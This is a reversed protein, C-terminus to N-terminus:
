EKMLTLEVSGKELRSWEDLHVHYGNAYEDKAMELLINSLTILGEKNAIIYFSDGEKDNKEIETKILFNKELAYNM